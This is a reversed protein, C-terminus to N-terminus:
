RTTDTYRGQLTSMDGTVSAITFTTKTWTTTLAVTNTGVVSGDVLIDLKSDIVPSVVDQSDWRDITLGGTPLITASFGVTCQVGAPASVSEVWSAPTSESTETDALVADISVGGTAIFAGPNSVTSSPRAITALGYLGPGAGVTIDDFDTTAPTTTGSTLLGIRWTRTAAVASTSVVGTDALVTTSDGAYAIVRMSVGSVIEYEFRVWTAPPVTDTSTYVTSSGSGALAKLKGTTSIAVAWSTVTATTDSYGKFLVSDVGPQTPIYQYHKGVFDSVDAALTRQVSMQSTGSRTMRYGRTAHFKAAAIAQITGGGANLADFADGSGGGSNGTTVTTPDTTYGEATNRFQVTPM